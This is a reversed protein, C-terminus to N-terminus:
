ATGEVHPRIHAAQKAAIAGRWILENKGEIRSAQKDEKVHWAWINNLRFDDHPWERKSFGKELNEIAGPMMDVTYDSLFVGDALRAGARIMMPGSCCGYIFFPDHTQDWTNQFPRTVQFLEGDYNFTMKGSRSLNLIEICETLGRVKREPMRALSVPDKLPWTPGDKSIRWGIAGLVGGGGSISVIGRGGSYQNLTHIANAMKLPHLEWPTIAMVGLKIKSTAAAAPMLSM